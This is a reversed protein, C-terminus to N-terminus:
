HLTGRSPRRSGFGFFLRRGLYAGSDGDRRLVGSTSSSLFYNHASHVCVVANGTSRPFMILMVPLTFLLLSATNTKEDTILPNGFTIQNNFHEVKECGAEGSSHGL